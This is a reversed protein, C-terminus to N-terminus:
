KPLYKSGRGRTDMTKQHGNYRTGDWGESGFVQFWMEARSKQEDKDRFARKDKM